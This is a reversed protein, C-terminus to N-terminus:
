EDASKRKRGRRTAKAAVAEEAEEKARICRPCYALGDYCKWGAQKLNRDLNRIAEGDTDGHADDQDGCESCCVTATCDIYIADIFESV